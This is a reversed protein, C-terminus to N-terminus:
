ALVEDYLSRWREASVPLGFQAIVHARGRAAMVAADQPSALVHELAAALADADRPPVLIAGHDGAIADTVGDISTAIAPVGTAMAEILAMGFAERVSPMVFVDAARFARDVDPMEGTFHVLGGLGAKAAEQKIREAIGRDVEHYKSETAGVFLLASSRPRARQVSLWAKFLVDPAKDASFFGVFLVWPVDLPLRGISQKAAVREAESPPRFRDTDVGNPMLRVKAPPLGASRCSEAIRESIAVFREASTYCWYALSGLARVAAPEDQGATHITIILKKGFLRSLLAMVISKQSFGHLHVIDFSAHHRLFFALASWAARLKSIPSRVDVFVRAVPVGDVTSDSPLQPDTGTTWVRFRMRDGLAHMMTRCQLGGGSLEPWFAGTVMLVGAKM